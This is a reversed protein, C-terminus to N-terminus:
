YIALCLTRGGDYDLSASLILIKLLALSEWNQTVATVLAKDVEIGAAVAEVLRQFLKCRGSVNTIAMESTFATNPSEPDLYCKLLIDLSRLDYAQMAKLITKGKEYNVNAVADFLLWL